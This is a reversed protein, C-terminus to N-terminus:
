VLCDRSHPTSNAEYKVLEARAEILDKPFDYTEDQQPVGHRYQRELAPQPRVGHWTM